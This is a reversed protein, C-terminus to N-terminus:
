HRPSGSAGVLDYKLVVSDEDAAGALESSSDNLVEALAEMEEPTIKEIDDMGAM